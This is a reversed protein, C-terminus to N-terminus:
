QVFSKTCDSVVLVLGSNRMGQLGAAHSVMRSLTQKVTAQKNSISKCFMAGPPTPQKGATFDDDHQNDGLLLGTTGRVCM